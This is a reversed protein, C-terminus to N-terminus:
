VSHRRHDCERCDCNLRNQSYELRVPIERRYSHSRQTQRKPYRPEVSVPRKGQYKGPGGSASSPRFRGETPQPGAFDHFGGEQKQRITLTSCRWSRTDQLESGCDSDYEDYGEQMGLTYCVSSLLVM